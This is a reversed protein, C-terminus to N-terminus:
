IGLIVENMYERVRLAQKECADQIFDNGYTKILAREFCDYLRVQYKWEIDLEKISQKLSTGWMLIDTIDHPEDLYPYFEVSIDDNIDAIYESPDSM